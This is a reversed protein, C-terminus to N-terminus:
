SGTSNSWSPTSLAQAVQQWFSLWAQCRSLAVPTDPTLETAAIPRLGLLALSADM